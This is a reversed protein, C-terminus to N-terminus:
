SKRKLKYVALTIIVSASVALLSFWLLLNMSDGTKPSNSSTNTNTENKKNTETKTNTEGKENEGINIEPVGKEKITFQTSADGNQSRVTLTHTGVALTELYSAKLTVVTNGESVSYNAGDVVTGDVLVSNFDAFAADSKFILVAQTGKKWSSDM